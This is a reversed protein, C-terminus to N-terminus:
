REIDEPVCQPPATVPNCRSPSADPLQAWYTRDSVPAPFNTSVWTVGGDIAAGLGASNKADSDQPNDAMTRVIMNAGLAAKIDGAQAIPDNLIAVAAVPDGPSSDVFLLRGALSTQNRSYAARVEGADDFAFIIRGRTKGLTPWGLSSVTKGLTEGGAQVEDPTVIRERVLVSLIEGEVKAFYAEAVDGSFGSKPELQVYLPQHNPHQASWIGITRLCDRFVHCTTGEDLNLIHFVQLDEDPLYHIDLELQRLGLTLQADLTPLSYHWDPLTNGASELHYSNHTGLAQLHNVRLMDDLPLNMEGSRSWPLPPGVDAAADATADAAATSKPSCAYFSSALFPVAAALCLSWTQRRM